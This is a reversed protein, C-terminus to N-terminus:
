FRDKLGKDYGKQNAESRGIIGLSGATIVSEVISKGIDEGIGTDRGESYGEQYERREKDSSM